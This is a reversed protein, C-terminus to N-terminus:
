APLEFEARREAPVLDLEAPHRRIYDQVFPCFPLVAAGEERAQALAARILAGGLGKGEFEPEIETHVFAYAGASRRYETFGARRGDVRIEFRSDGPVDRVEPPPKKRLGRMEAM